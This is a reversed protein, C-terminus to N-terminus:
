VYKKAYLFSSFTGSTYDMYVLPLISGVLIFGLLLSVWLNIQYQVIQNVSPVDSSDDDAKAATKIMAKEQLLVPRTLESVCHARLGHKSAAEDVHGCLEKVEEHTLAEEVYLNPYSQKADISKHLKGNMAAHVDEVAAVDSVASPTGMLVVESAINANYVRSFEHIIQPVAADLMKAALVSRQDAAGYEAVLGKYGVLSLTYIDPTSDHVAATLHVDEKLQSILHQVAALEAVFTYDAENSLDLTSTAGDLSVTAKGDVIDMAGGASRFRALLGHAGDGSLLSQVDAAEFTRSLPSDNNLSDLTHKTPNLSVSEANSGTYAHVSAAAAFQPDASLSVVLPTDYSHAVMDAVTPVAAHSGTTDYATKKGAATLWESGVVGHTSPLEGTVLTTLQSLPHRPEFTNTLEFSRHTDSLTSIQSMGQDKVSKGGVAPLAILLNARPKHFITSGAFAQSQKPVEATVPQAGLVHALMSAVETERMETPADFKATALDNDHRDVAILMGDGKIPRAHTVVIDGGRGGHLGNRVPDAVVLTGFALFLLASAM